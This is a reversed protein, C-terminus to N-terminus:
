SQNFKNIIPSATLISALVEVSTETGLSKLKELVKSKKEEPTETTILILRIEKLQSGKLEDSLANSIADFILDSEKDKEPLGLIQLEEVSAELIEKGLKRATELYSNSGTTDRLSWSSFDYEISQIQRVKESNDGFIRALLIITHKKWAELDFDKAKLKEIQDQIIKIEKDPM